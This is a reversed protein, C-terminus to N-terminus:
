LLLPQPEPEVRRQAEESARLDVWQFLKPTDESHGPVTEATIEHKKAISRLEAVLSKNKHATNGKLMGKVYSSDMVLQVQCSKKLQLLGKIVATLEMKNNTTETDGGSITVEVQGEKSPYVLCAAWGGPGPNGKCAGDAFIWVIPKSM